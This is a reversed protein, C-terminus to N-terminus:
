VVVVVVVIICELQELDNRSSLERVAWRHQPVTRTPLPMPWQRMPHMLMTWLEDNNNGTGSSLDAHSILTHTHPRHHLSSSLSSSSSSVRESSELTGCSLQHMWQHGISWVNWDSVLSVVSRADIWRRMISVLAHQMAQVIHSRSHDLDLWRPMAQM